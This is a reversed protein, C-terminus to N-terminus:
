IPWPMHCCARGKSALSGLKSIPPSAEQLPQGCGQGRRDRVLLREPRAQWLRLALDAPALELPVDVREGDGLYPLRAGTARRPKTITTGACFGGATTTRWRSRVRGFRPSWASFRPRLEVGKQDGLMAHEAIKVRKHSGLFLEICRLAPHFLKDCFGFFRFRTALPAEVARLASPRACAADALVSVPLPIKEVFARTIPAEATPAIAIAPPTNPIRWSM